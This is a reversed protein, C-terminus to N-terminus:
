RGGGFTSKAAELMKRRAAESASANDKRQAGGAPAPKTGPQSWAQAADAVMKRRATEAAPADGDKRVPKPQPGPASKAAAGPLGGYADSRARATRERLQELTATRPDLSPALDEAELRVDSRRVASAAIKEFATAVYGDGQDTLPLRGTVRQITVMMLARDDLGALDANDGLIARAVKEIESRTM